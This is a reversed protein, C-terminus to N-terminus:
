KLLTVNGAASQLKDDSFRYESVFVYVGLPQLMGKYYGNWGENIDNSEYVMEGWRNYVRVSYKTLDESYKPKFRDNIGDGNPTFGTPFFVYSTCIDKSIVVSDETTCGNADSVTLAYTGTDLRNLSATTNGKNWTYAYPNAGGDIRVSIAGNREDYCSVNKAETFVIDLGSLYGINATDSVTCSNADTITVIYIGTNLNSLSDQNLIGNSWAYQFPSVGGSINVDATGGGGTCTDPTTHIEKVMATPEGISAQLITPCASASSVTVAYDGATLGTATATTQVPSTSWTYTYSGAPTVTVTASGDNYGNCTANQASINAAIVEIQKSISTPANCPGGAYLTATYTGASAFTHTANIGSASGGDSFTWVLTDPCNATIGNFSVTNGNCSYTFDATNAPAEGIYIDDFAIGNYNNCATGAGFTIRLQVNSAGLLPICQTATVWGGSGGGGLCSGQTNNTNGSWGENVNVFGGLNTINPANFWNQNMCSVPKNYTKVNGWTFGGDPSYQLNSGDYQQESEWYISLSIYPHQLGSLDFCPSVVYSREGSTYSNGSLGGVIWCNNGSAAQNIKNKSPTGWAWDNGSGGSTWGGTGAEFNEQYPFTNICQAALQKCCLMLIFLM